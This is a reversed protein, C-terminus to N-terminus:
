RPTPGDGVRYDFYKVGSKTIKGVTPIEEQRGDVAEAREALAQGCVITSGILGM